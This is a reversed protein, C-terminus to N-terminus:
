QKKSAPQTGKPTRTGKPGQTKQGQTGITSSTPVIKRGKYTPEETKPEWQICGFYGDTDLDDNGYDDSATFFKTERHKRVHCTGTVKGGIGKWGYDWFRCDKCHNM